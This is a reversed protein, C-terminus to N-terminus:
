LCSIIIILYTVVKATTHISIALGQMFDPMWSTVVKATTHISIHPFTKQGHDRIDGGERHHPNFHGANGPHNFHLQDGGERHHPNFHLPTPSVSVGRITVVKATTHISILCIVSPASSFALDGGERHHPNFYRLKRDGCHHFYDGGERHHPNFHHTHHARM